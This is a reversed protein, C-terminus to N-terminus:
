SFFEFCTIKSFLLLLYNIFMEYNYRIKIEIKKFQKIISLFYDM